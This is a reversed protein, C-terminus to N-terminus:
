WMPVVLQFAENGLNTTFYKFYSITFQPVIICLPIVIISNKAFESWKEIQRNTQDYIEKSKPYNLELIIKLM